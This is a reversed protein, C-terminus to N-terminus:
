QEPHNTKIVRDMTAKLMAEREQQIGPKPILIKGTFPNIVPTIKDVVSKLASMIAGQKRRDRPKCDFVNAVGDGDSDSFLDIVRGKRFKVKSRKSSSM